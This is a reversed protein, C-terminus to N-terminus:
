YKYRGLISKIFSRTIIASIIVFHGNAPVTATSVSSFFDKIEAKKIKSFSSFRM